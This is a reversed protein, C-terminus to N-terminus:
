KASILHATPPSFFRTHSDQPQRFVSHNMGRDLNRGKFGLVSGAQSALGDRALQHGARFGTVLLLHRDRVGKGRCPGKKECLFHENSLPKTIM